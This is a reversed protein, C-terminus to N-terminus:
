NFSIDRVSSCLERENETLREYGPLGHILLSTPGKRRGRGFVDIEGGRGGGHRLTPPRLIDQAALEQAQYERTAM